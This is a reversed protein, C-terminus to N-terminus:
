RKTPTGVCIYIADFSCLLIHFDNSRKKATSYFYHRPVALAHLLTKAVFNLFKKTSWSHSKVEIGLLQKMWKLFLVVENSRHIKRSAKSGRANSESVGLVKNLRTEM